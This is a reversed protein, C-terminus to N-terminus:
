LHPLNMNRLYFDPWVEHRCGEHLCIGTLFNGQELIVPRGNAPPASGIVGRCQVLSRGLLLVNFGGDLQPLGLFVHAVLPTALLGAGLPSPEGTRSSAPWPPSAPTRNKGFSYKPKSALWSERVCNVLRFDPWVLAFVNGSAAASYHQYAVMLASKYQSVIKAEVAATSNQTNRRQNPRRLKASHMKAPAIGLPTKQPTTITIEM